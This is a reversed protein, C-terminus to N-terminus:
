YYFGHIQISPEGFFKIVKIKAELLRYDVFIISINFHGDHETFRAVREIPQGYETEIAEFIEDAFNDLDEYHNFNM